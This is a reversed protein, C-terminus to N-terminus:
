ARLGDFRGFCASFAAVIPFFLDVPAFLLEPNLHIPEQHTDEHMRCVDRIRFARFPKQGRMM